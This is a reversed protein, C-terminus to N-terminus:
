LGSGKKREHATLRNRKAAKKLLNYMDAVKPDGGMVKDGIPLTRRMFEDREETSLRIVEGGKAKWLQAARRDYRIVVDEMHRELERGVDMVAKQLDPPLSDYFKKSMMAMDPIHTDEVLTIYKVTDYFKLAALVVITSRIGDIQGRQLGPIADGMGMPVGTSGFEEMIAREVDTALVRIKKGKFDALTRIPEKSAYATPGYDFIAIGIMGKNEALRMFPERFEPDSLSRSIHAIDDFLGPVDSVQFRPDVGKFFGPPLMSVEIAGEQVGSVMLKVGGLQHGPYLVVDIRGKTVEELRQEFMRGFEHHIEDTPFIAVKLTFEAASAGQVPLAALVGALAIGTARSALSTLKNQLRTM